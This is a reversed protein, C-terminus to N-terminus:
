GRDRRVSHQVSAHWARQSPRLDAQAMGLPHPSRRITRLPNKGWLEHGESVKFAPTSVPLTITDATYTQIKVASAGAAAAARVIELGRELNGNHNGSIEAIIFPKGSDANSKPSM